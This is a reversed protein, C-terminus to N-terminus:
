LFWQNLYFGVGLAEFIKNIHMSYSLHGSIIFSGANQDHSKTYVIIM